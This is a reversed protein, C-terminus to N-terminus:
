VPSTCVKAALYKLIPIHGFYPTDDIYLVPITGCPNHGSTVLEQKLDLWSNDPAVKVDEFDVDHVYLMFRVIGGRGAVPGLEFYKLKLKKEALAEKGSM